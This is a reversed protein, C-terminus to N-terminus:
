PIGDRIARVADVAGEEAMRRTRRPFKKEFERGLDRFRAADGQTYVVHAATDVKVQQTEATTLSPMKKMM